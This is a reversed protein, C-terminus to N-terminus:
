RARSCAPIWALCQLRICLQSEADVPLAEDLEGVFAITQGVPVDIGPEFLIKRIVGAEPSNVECTTKEGEIRVIPVDKEVHDGEKRLWELIKGSQM